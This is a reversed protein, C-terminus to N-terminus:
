QNSSKLMTAILPQRKNKLFSHVPEIVEHYDSMQPKEQQMANKCGDRVGRTTKTGTAYLAEVPLRDFGEIDIMNFMEVIISSLPLVIMKNTLKVETNYVYLSLTSLVMVDLEDGGCLIKVGLHVRM